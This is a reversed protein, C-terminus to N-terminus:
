VAVEALLGSPEPTPQFMSIPVENGTIALVEAMKPIYGTATHYGVVKGDAAVGLRKYVWIDEIKVEGNEFGTVEAIGVIKRSGDRLRNQHVILQIAAAVQERIARSPLETGAMLVLTELRSPVERPSNSHLTTLSGDHGTNMAQLMDLAEPGRCEGIVIRDPRMRLSNIVLDRITVRGRGEVNPPRTELPVVHPQRLRLEAADEITVIREDEPLFGSLVNLTTTKGSAGGGSVVVNMRARVAARMFMMMEPTCTGNSIMDDPELQEKGFKRITITPGTLSLPPIVIHVRSGDPLRADVLPSSEDIRRGVRAVIRDIVQMLQARSDFRVNAKRMSRGEEVYIKNENNVMIESVNPDDLLDDLPGLGVIDATIVEVLRERDTRNVFVGRLRANEDILEALRRRIEAEPVNGNSSFEDVIQQHIVPRLADIPSAPNTGVPGSRTRQLLSTQGAGAGPRAPPPAAGPAAPTGPQFVPTGPRGERAQQLRDNLSVCLYDRGM